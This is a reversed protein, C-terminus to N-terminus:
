PWTLFAVFAGKSIRILEYFNDSTQCPFYQKTKFVTNRELSDLRAEAEAEAPSEAEM